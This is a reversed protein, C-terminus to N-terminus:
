EIDKVPLTMDWLRLIGDAGATMLQHEHIESWCVDYLGDQTHFRSMPGLHRDYSFFLSFLLESMKCANFM